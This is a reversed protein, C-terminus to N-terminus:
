YGLLLQEIFKLIIYLIFIILFPRPVFVRFWYCLPKKHCRWWGLINQSKSDNKLTKFRDCWQHSFQLFPVFLYTFSLLHYVTNYFFLFIVSIVNVILNLMTIVDGDSYTFHEYQVWQVVNPLFTSCIRALSQPQPASMNKYSFWLGKISRMLRWTFSFRFFRFWTSVNVRTFQLYRRLTIANLSCSFKQCFM